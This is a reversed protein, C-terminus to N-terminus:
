DDDLLNGRADFDIKHVLRGERLYYAEFSKGHLAYVEEVAVLAGGPNCNAVLAQQAPSLDNVDAGVELEIGDDYKIEIALSTDRWHLSADVGSVLPRADFAIRDERVVRSLSDTLLMLGSVIMAGYGVRVFTVHPIRDLVPKLLVSSTAAALGVVVGAKLVDGGLLGLRWYVVLKILHILVENTARTAVIAQKSLGHTFYFRNFLVGVAGTLGSLFGAAAGVLVISWRSPKAGAPAAQPNLLAPLNALLFLAMLVQLYAPNLFRLLLAGVLAMPVAAPVFWAAIGWHISGYFAAIRSVSSAGTGISLAAPIAAIPVMRGLLPVVLLSAGGGAVASIAFALLSGFFLLFLLSGEV